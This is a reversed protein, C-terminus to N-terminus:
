RQSALGAAWAGLGVGLLPAVRAADKLLERRRSLRRVLAGLRLVPAVTLLPWHSFGGYPFDVRDCVAAFAQGLRYQHRILEGFGTRNLHWVGASPVFRLRNARGWPVTLVTDEGPWIDECFGGASEFASRNVLLNCTAGHLPFGRRGPIWESFELLYSATGV